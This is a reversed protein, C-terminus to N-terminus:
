ETDNDLDEWLEDLSSYAKVNPNKKLEDVEKIALITESNPTNYYIVDQMYKVINGKVNEGAGSVISKYANYIERDMVFSCTITNSKM